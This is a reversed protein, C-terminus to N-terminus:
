LIGDLLKTSLKGLREIRDQCPCHPFPDGVDDTVAPCLVIQQPKLQILSPNPHLHEVVPRPCLINARLVDALPTPQKAQPFPHTSQSSPHLGTWKQQFALGM